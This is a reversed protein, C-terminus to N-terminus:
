FNNSHSSRNKRIQKKDSLQVLKQVKEQFYDRDKYPLSNKIQNISKTLKQNERDQVFREDDFNIDMQSYKLNERMAISSYLRKNKHNKSYNFNNVEKTKQPITEKQGIQSFSFNNKQKASLLKQRDKIQNIKNKKSPFITFQKSDENEKSNKIEESKFFISNEQMKKEEEKAKKLFINKTNTKNESKLKLIDKKIFDKSHIINNNDDNINFLDKENISNFFSKSDLLKQKIKVENGKLINLNNYQKIKPEKSYRTLYDNAIKEKKNIKRQFNTHRAFIENNKNDDNFNDFDFNKEKKIKLQLYKKRTKTLNMEVDSLINKANNEKNNTSPNRNFDSYSLFGEIYKKIISENKYNIENFNIKNHKGYDLNFRTSKNNNLYTNFLMKENKFKNMLDILLIKNNNVNKKISEFDNIYENYKDQIMQMNKNIDLIENTLAKYLNQTKEKIINNIKQNINEMIKDNDDFKKSINSEFKKYEKINNKIEELVKPLNPINYNIFDKNIEEVKNVCFSINGKFKELMDEIKNKEEKKELNEKEKAIILKKMNMLLYDILEHFTKFESKKGIIGPYLISDLIIKDYKSITDQLVYDLNKIKFEANMLSESAKAKFKELDLFKQQYTNLNSIGLSLASMKEYCTQSKIQTDNLKSEFDNLKKIYKSNLKAISDKMDKLLDNKFYLLDEKITKSIFDNNNPIIVNNESLNKIEKNESDTRNENTKETDVKSM